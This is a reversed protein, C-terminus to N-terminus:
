RNREKVFAGVLVAVATEEAVADTMRTPRPDYHRHVAFYATVETFVRAAAATDPLPRFHGSATRREIYAGLLDLVGRRARGWWLEGLEPWDLASREIIKLGRHRDRMPVLLERTIGAVEAEVDAPAAGSSAAHLLPVATERGLLAALFALTAGPQPTPLPLAAASEIESPAYECRVVLDFLAEKSTVYRYVAGASLGMAQTVDAMQTRRYGKALFVDGACRVLEPLRDTAPPRPM